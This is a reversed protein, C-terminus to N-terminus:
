MRKREINLVHINPGNVPSKFSRLAQVQCQCRKPWGFQTHM